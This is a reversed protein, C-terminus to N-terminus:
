QVLSPKEWDWIVNINSVTYHRELIDMLFQTRVFRLIHPDLYRVDSALNTILIPIEVSQVSPPILKVPIKPAIQVGGQVQLAVVEVILLTYGIWHM